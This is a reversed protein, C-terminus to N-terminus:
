DVVEPLQYRKIGAGPVPPGSLLPNLVTLVAATLEGWIGLVDNLNKNFQKMLYANINQVNVNPIYKLEGVSVLCNYVYLEGHRSGIALYESQESIFGKLFGYKWLVDRDNLTGTVIVGNKLIEKQSKKVFDEIEKPVTPVGSKNLYLKLLYKLAVTTFALTFAGGLLLRSDIKSRKLKNLFAGSNLQFGTSAFLSFLVIKVTKKM